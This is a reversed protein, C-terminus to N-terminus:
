RLHSCFRSLLLVFSGYFTKVIFFQIKSIEPFLLKLVKYNSGQHWITSSPRMSSLTRLDM